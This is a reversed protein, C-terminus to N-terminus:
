LSLYANEQAVWSEWARLGMGTGRPAKVHCAGPSTAILSRSRATALLATTRLKLTPTGGATSAAAASFPTSIRRYRTM